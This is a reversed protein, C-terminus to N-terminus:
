SAENSWLTDVYPSEIVFADRLEQKTNQTGIEARSFGSSTASGGRQRDSGTSRGSAASFASTSEVSMGDLVPLSAFLVALDLTSYSRLLFM